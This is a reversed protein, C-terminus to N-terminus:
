GGGGGGGGADPAGGGGGGGGAGGGDVAPGVSPSGSHSSACRLTGVLVAAMLAALSLQIRRMPAESEPRLCDPCPTRARAVTAASASLPRESSPANSLRDRRSCTDSVRSCRARPSHHLVLYLGNQRRPRAEEAGLELRDSRPPTVYT